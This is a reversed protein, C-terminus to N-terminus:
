YYMVFECLIYEREGNQMISSVIHRIYRLAVESELEIMNLVLGFM